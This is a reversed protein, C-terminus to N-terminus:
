YVPTLVFISCAIAFELFFQLQPNRKLITGVLFALSLIAAPLWVWLAGPGMHELLWRIPRQVESPLLPTLLAVLYLTGFYTLLM